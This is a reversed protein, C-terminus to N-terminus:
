IDTANGTCHFLIPANAEDRLHVLVAKFIEGYLDLIHDYMNIYAPVGEDEIFDSPMFLTPQRPTKQWITQVGQVDPSAHRQKEHGQRLDFISRLGLQSHLLGISENPISHLAGSRYILGPRIKSGPVLGIDRFNSAGPIQIFPMSSLALSLDEEPIPSSIPISLLHSQPYGLLNGEPAM